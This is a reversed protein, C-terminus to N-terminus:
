VLVFFNITKSDKQRVDFAVGWHAYSEAFGPRDDRGDVSNRRLHVIVFKTALLSVGDGGYGYCSDGTESGLM